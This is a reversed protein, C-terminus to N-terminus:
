DLQKSRWEKPGLGFRRRFVRAFYSPDEYGCRWAIEAIQVQAFRRDALLARARELRTRSLAEVFTEGEDALLAHLYRKSIGVSRAVAAPDLSAEAYREEIVRLIRAGLKTRHRTAGVSQDGVALALLPGLQDALSARPLPANDLEGAMAILLSGLPLGWTASCSIPRGIARSPDPLWRELWLGPMVVDIAEHEASMTMEYPRRNDVLVFEGETLQFDQEGVRGAIPTRRCFVLQFQGERSNPVHAVRQASATLAVLSLPGLNRLQFSAAFRAEDALEIDLQAMVACAWRRWSEFAERSALGQSCWFSDRPAGPGLSMQTEKWRAM